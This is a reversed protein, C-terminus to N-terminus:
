RLLRPALQGDLNRGPAAAPPPDLAKGADPSRSESLDRLEAQALCLPSNNGNGTLDCIELSGLQSSNNTNITSRSAGNTIKFSLNAGAFALTDIGGDGRKVRGTTLQNARYWLSQRPRHSQLRPPQFRQPQPSRQLQM